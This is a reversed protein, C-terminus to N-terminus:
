KQVVIKEIRIKQVDERKNEEEEIKEQYFRQELSEKMQSQNEVFNQEMKKMNEEWQEYYDESFMKWSIKEEEEFYSDFAFVIQVAVIFSFILKMYKEYNKSIGFHLVTQGIIVFIGVRKALELFVTFM